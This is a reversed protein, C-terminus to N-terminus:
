PSCLFSSGLNQALLLYFYGLQPITMMNIPSAAQELRIANIKIIIASSSEFSPEEVRSLGEFARLLCLKGLSLRTKFISIPEETLSRTIRSSSSGPSATLLNQSLCLSGAAAQLTRSSFSASFKLGAPLSQPSCALRNTFFPLKILFCTPSRVREGNLAESGLSLGQLGPGPSLRSTWLGITLLLNTSSDPTLSSALGLCCLLRIYSIILMLRDTGVFAKSGLCGLRALLDVRALLDFCRVKLLLVKPLSEAPWSSDLCLRLEWSFCNEDVVFRLREMLGEVLQLKDLLFDKFDRIERFETIESSQECLSAIFRKEWSCDMVIRFRMQKKFILLIKSIISSWFEPNTESPLKEAQRSGFRTFNKFGTRSSISEFRKFSQRCSNSLLTFKSRARM